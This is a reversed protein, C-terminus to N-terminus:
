MGCAEILMGGSCRGGTTSVEEWSERSNNFIVSQYVSSSKPQWASIPSATTQKGTELNTTSGSRKMSSAWSGM